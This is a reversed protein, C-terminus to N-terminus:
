REIGALLLGRAITSIPYPQENNELRIMAQVMPLAFRYETFDFSRDPAIGMHRAVFSAYSDPDNGDNKPAWRAIMNSVRNLGHKRQYTTLVMAMARIGWRPAVFVCFETEERQFETKEHHKALGQWNDGIRINGPNNNRIGRPDDARIRVADSSSVVDIDDEWYRGVNRGYAAKEFKIGEEGSQDISDKADGWHVMEHLITSEVLLKAEARNFDTQFKEAIEKALLIRHSKRPDFLGNGGGLSKIYILPDNNNWQLAKRAENETLESYRLFAKWKTENYHINPLENKIWETLRSYKDMHSKAMRVM